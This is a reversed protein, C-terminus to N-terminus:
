KENLKRRKKKNKGDNKPEIKFTGENIDLQTVGLAYAAWVDKAFGYFFGPEKKTGKGHNRPNEYSFRNVLADSIISDTATVKGTLNLKVYRREITTYSLGEQECLQEIKGIFICTDFVTRGVNMMYSAVMEIVVNKNLVSYVRIINLMDENLVKGHQLPKYNEDMIVYGTYVNGPDIALLKSM